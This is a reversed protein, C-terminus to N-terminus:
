WGSATYVVEDTEADGWALERLLALVGEEPDILSIGRRAYERGLEQSVMGGHAGTPAWPGWHVTLARSGTADRWHRGLGALADNAAAYDIQGRNGYVASISGFLVAFRPLEPLRHVAALLAKAGDVKTGYVRAFSEPDKEAVLRDEIIGAAHVIGDVRGHRAYVDKVAQQVAEADRLDLARYGATGGAARIEALTQAVERAALIRGAEREIEAPRLGGRAAIAARLSVKDHAAPFPDGGEALETRGLLEVRCRSATALAVAFRATIGRAGGALLVVSDPGLGLVAAEAAGDGAPGAGGGGLLGLGCEYAEVGRRTGVAGSAGGASDGRLVVPERDPALLEEVLAEAQDTPSWAADLDVVRALTDPYERAVTRFFGSLGNADGTYRACVLWRPARRLVGKFVPFQGPLLAEGVPALAGVHLVGDLPEQRGELDGTGRTARAGLVTLRTVLAQAVPTGDGIVLFHRGRLDQEVSGPAPAPALPTPRLLYRKPTSGTLPAPQQTAGDSTRSSPAGTGSVDSTPPGSALSEPPRTDLAPREPTQTAPTAATAQPTDVPATPAPLEVAPEPRAPTGLRGTLWEAIGAATRARTLEELEADPLSRLDVG